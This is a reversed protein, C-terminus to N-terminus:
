RHGLAQSALDTAQRPVVLLSGELESWDESRSPEVDLQLTQARVTAPHFRGKCGAAVIPERNEDVGLWCKPPRANRAREARRQGVVAQAKPDGVLYAVGEEVVPRGTAGPAKREVAGM